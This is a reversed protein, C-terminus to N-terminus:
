ARAEGALLAPGVPARDGRLLAQADGALVVVEFLDAPAKAVLGEELHEAVEREAVVELLVRDAEGPLEQGLVEAEVRALERHRHEALVVLGGRDPLLLDADGGGPDVPEVLGVVEPRHALGPGAPRAALDVEVAPRERADRAVVRGLVRAAEELEPVQDEHLVVAVRRPAQCRERLRRHVRAGAELAGRLHEGSERAVVLGVQEGRDEGAGLLERPHREAGPGLRVHRQTHDGVVGAGDGEQDAVTHQGRVFAAAVHQAADQAAGRPVPHQEPELAREEVGHALRHDLPHAARERLQDLPAREDGIAHSAFLLAEELREALPERQEFALDALQARAAALLQRAGDQELEVVGEAEREVERLVDEATVPELAVLRAEARLHLRLARARALGPLPAAVRADGLHVAPDRRVEGGPEDAVVCELVLGLDAREQDAAPERVLGGVAGLDLDDDSLRGEVGLAASLDAIAAHDLRRAPADQDLVRLARAALQHHVAALDDHPAHPDALHRASATSRAARSAM